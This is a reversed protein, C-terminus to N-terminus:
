SPIEQNRMHSQLEEIRQRAVTVWPTDPFLDAARRYTVLADLPSDARTKYRDAQSILTLAAAARVSAIRDTQMPAPDEARAALEGLRQRHREAALLRDASTALAAAEYKAREYRAPSELPPAPTLSFPATQATLPHAPRDHSSQLVAVVSAAIVVIAAATAVLRRNHRRGSAHRVAAALGEQLPPLPAAADARHLLAALPDNPWHESDANM